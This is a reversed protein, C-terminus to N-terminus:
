IVNMINVLIRLKKRVGCEEEVHGSCKKLPEFQNLRVSM